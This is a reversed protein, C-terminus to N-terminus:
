KLGKFSLQGYGPDRKQGKRGQLNSSLGLSHVFSSMKDEIRFLGEKLEGYFKIMETSISLSVACWVM